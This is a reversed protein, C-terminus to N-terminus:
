ATGAEQVSSDSDTRVTETEPLEPVVPFAFLVRGYCSTDLIAKRRIYETSTVM